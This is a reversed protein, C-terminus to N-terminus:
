PLPSEMGNDDDDTCAVFCAGFLMIVVLFWNMKKMINLFKTYCRNLTAFIFYGM